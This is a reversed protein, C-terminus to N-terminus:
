LREAVAGSKQATVMHRKKFHSVHMMQPCDGIVGCPSLPFFASKGDPTFAPTLSIRGSQSLPHLTAKPANLASALSPITCASIIM